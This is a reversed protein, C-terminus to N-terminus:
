YGNVAPHVLASPILLAGKNRGEATSEEKYTNKAGDKPLLPEGIGPGGVEGAGWHKRGEADTSSLMLGGSGNGGWIRRVGGSREGRERVRTIERRMERWCISNDGERMRKDRKGRERRQIGNEKQNLKGKIIKKKQVRDEDKSGDGEIQSGGKTSEAEGNLREDHKKKM